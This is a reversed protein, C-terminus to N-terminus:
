RCDYINSNFVLIYGFDSVLFKLLSKVRSVYKKHLLTYPLMLYRVWRIKRLWWIKILYICIQIYIIRQKNIMQCEWISIVSLHEASFLDGWLVVFSFLGNILENLLSHFAPCPSVSLSVSTAFVMPFPFVSSIRTM